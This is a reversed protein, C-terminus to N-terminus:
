DSSKGCILISVKFSKTKPPSLEGFNQFNQFNRRILDGFILDASILPPSIKEQIESLTM